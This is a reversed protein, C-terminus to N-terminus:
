WNRCASARHPEPPLTSRTHRSLPSATNPRSTQSTEIQGTTLPHPLPRSAPNVCGDSASQTGHGAPDKAAAAPLRGLPWSRWAGITTLGGMMQGTLTHNATHRPLQSTARSRKIHSWHEFLGINRKVLQSQREATRSGGKDCDRVWSSHLWTAM